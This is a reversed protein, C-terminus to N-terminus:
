FKNRELDYREKALRIIECTWGAGYMATLIDIIYDYMKEKCGFFTLKNKLERDKLIKAHEGYCDVCYGGYVNPRYRVEEHYRECLREYEDIDRQIAAMSDSM